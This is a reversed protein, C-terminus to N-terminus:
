DRRATLGVFLAGAASVLPFALLLWALSGDRHMDHGMDHGLDALPLMTELVQLELQGADGTLTATMGDGVLYLQGTLITAFVADATALDPCAM